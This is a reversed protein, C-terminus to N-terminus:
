RSPKLKTRATDPIFEGRIDPSQAGFVYTLEKAWSWKEKDKGDVVRMREGLAKKAETAEVKSDDEVDPGLVWADGRIRWQTKPGEIWFAAEVPGGGGTEQLVEADEDENPSQQIQEPKEMRADTTLTLCETEYVKPNAQAKNRDDSITDGLM